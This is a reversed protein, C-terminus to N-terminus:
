IKVQLYKNFLYNKLNRECRNVEGQLASKALWADELDRIAKYADKSVKMGVTGQEQRALLKNIKVIGKNLEIKASAWDERLKQEKTDRM